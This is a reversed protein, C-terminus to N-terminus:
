VPRGPLMNATVKAYTVGTEDWVNQLLEFIVFVKPRHALKRALGGLDVVIAPESM